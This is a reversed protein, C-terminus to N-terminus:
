RSEQDRLRDLVRRDFDPDVPESDVDDRWPNDSM